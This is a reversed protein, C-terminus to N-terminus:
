ARRLGALGRWLDRLFTLPGSAGGDTKGGKVGKGHTGDGPNSKTSM